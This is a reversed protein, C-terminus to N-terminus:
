AARGRLFECTKKAPGAPVTDGARLIDQAAGQRGVPRMPCCRLAVPLLPFPPSSFTFLSFYLHFDFPLPRFITWLPIIFSFCTGPSLRGIYVNLDDNRGLVRPAHRMPLQLVRRPARHRQLSGPCINIQCDHNHAVARHPLVVLSKMLDVRRRIDQRERGGHAATIQAINDNRIVGGFRIRPLRAPAHAIFQLQQDRVPDQMQETIVVRRRIRVLRHPLPLCFNQTQRRFYSVM